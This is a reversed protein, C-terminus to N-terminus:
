KACKYEPFHGHLGMMSQVYLDTDQLKAQVMNQERTACVVTSEWKKRLPIKLSKIV